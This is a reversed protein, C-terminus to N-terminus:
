LALQVRNTGESAVKTGGYYKFLQDSPIQKLLEKSWEEKNPGFIKFTKISYDSLLPRIREM